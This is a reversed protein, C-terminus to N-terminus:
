ASMEGAGGIKFRRTKESQRGFEDRVRVVLSDVPELCSMAVSVDYPEARRAISWIWSGGDRQPKRITMGDNDATMLSVRPDEVPVDKRCSTIAVTLESSGQPFALLREFAIMQAGDQRLEIGHRRCSPIPNREAGLDLAAAATGASNGANLGLRREILHAVFLAAGRAAARRYVGRSRRDELAKTSDAFDSIGRVVLASTTLVGERPRIAEFLGQSEMEVACLKANGLDARLKQRFRTSKVVLNGTALQDNANIHVNPLREDLGLTTFESATAKLAAQRWTQYANQRDGCLARASGLLSFDTQNGTPRFVYNLPAGDDEVVEGVEYGVVNAPIIIDGLPLEEGVLSGAIGVLVTNAPRWLRVADNAFAAAWAQGMKGMSAAVVLAHRDGVVHLGRYCTGVAQPTEVLAVPWVERLADLEEDLPTLILYDIISM